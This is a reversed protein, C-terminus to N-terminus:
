GVRRKGNRKKIFESITYWDAIPYKQLAEEAEKYMELKNHRKDFSWYRRILVDEFLKAQGVKKFLKAVDKITDTIVIVVDHHPIGPLDPLDEQYKRMSDSHVIEELWYVYELMKIQSPTYLGVLKGDVVKTQTKDGELSTLIGNHIMANGANKGNYRVYISGNFKPKRNIWRVWRLTTFDEFLNLEKEKM